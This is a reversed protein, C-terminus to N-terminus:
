HDDGFIRITADRRQFEAPKFEVKQDDSYFAETTKKGWQQQQQQQKKNCINLANTTQFSYCKFSHNTM